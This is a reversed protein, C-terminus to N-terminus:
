KTSVCATFSIDKMLIKEPTYGFSVHEFAIRGEARDINVPTTTDPM